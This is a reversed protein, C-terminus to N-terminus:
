QGAGAIRFKTIGIDMYANANLSEERGTLKDWGAKLLSWGGGVYSLHTETPIDRESYPM